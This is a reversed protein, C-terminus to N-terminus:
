GVGQLARHAVVLAGHEAALELVHLEQLALDLLEAPLDLLPHARELHGDLPDVIDPAQALPAGLRDHSFNPHVHTAEGGGLV